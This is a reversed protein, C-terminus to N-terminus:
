SGQAAGGRPRDSGRRRKRTDNDHQGPGAMCIRVWSIKEWAERRVLGFAGVGVYAWTKPVCLRAPDLKISLAIAFTSVFARELFGHAEFQPLAVFHGLGHAEAFSVSRKLAHRADRTRQRARDHADSM